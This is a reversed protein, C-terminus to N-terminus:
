SPSIDGGSPVGGGVTIIKEGFLSVTYEELFKERMKLM